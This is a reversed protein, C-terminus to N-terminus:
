QRTGQDDQTPLDTRSSSSDLCPDLRLHKAVFAAGQLSLHDDNAYLIGENSESLCRGDKCLAEKPLYACVQPQSAAVGAVVSDAFAIHTLIPESEADCPQMDSLPMENRALCDPVNVGLPPTVGLLVVTKGASRLRDVTTKLARAFVRRSADSSWEADRDDTLYTIPGPDDGFRVNETYLTWRASLAIVAVSSDERVYDMVQRNFALCPGYDAGPGEVAAAVLPPCGAMTLQHTSLGNDAAVTVLAPAVASAHSDGWIVLRRSHVDANTLCPDAPLPGVITQRRLCPTTLPNIGFRAAEARLLAPSALSIFGQSTYVVFGLAFVGTSVFAYRWLVPAAAAVQRVRFPTEVFKWTVVSLVFALAVIALATPTAIHGRAVTRALALLPWHWLYLSYSILGVFVVPRRALLWRSVHTEGREGGAIIFAAGLCPALAAWGPFPTDRDFLFLAGGILALGTATLAERSRRGAPAPWMHLALAAGLLLEWARAPLLFFATPQHRATFYVSIAFSGVVALWIVGRAYRRGYLVALMLPWILYFQEEVALSWTHLLPKTEAATDFYGTDMWFAFNSGFAATAALTRGFARLERPTCFLCALALTTALVTFLAPFIRKTRRVYFSAISFRGREIDSAVIKTILYGSIVFFVDVGIYGGPAAAPLAHYAVVSLVAVARLGDVDPRYAIV